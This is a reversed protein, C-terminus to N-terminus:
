FSCSRAGFLKSISSNGQPVSSVYVLERHNNIRCVVPRLPNRIEALRDRERKAHLAPVLCPSSDDTM